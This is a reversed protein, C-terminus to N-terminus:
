QTQILRNVSPQPKHWNSASYGLAVYDTHITSKGVSIGREKLRSQMDYIGPVQYLPSDGVIAKITNRRHQVKPSTM